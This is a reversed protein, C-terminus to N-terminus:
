GKTIFCIYNSLDGCKWLFEGRKLKVPKLLYLVKIFFKKNFTNFFSSNILHPHMEKLLNYKLKLPM